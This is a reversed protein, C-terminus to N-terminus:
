PNARLSPLPRGYAARSAAPLTCVIAGRLIAAQALPCNAQVALMLYFAASPNRVPNERSDCVPHSTRNTPSM